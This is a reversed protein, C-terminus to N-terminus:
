WPFSIWESIDLQSWVSRCAWCSRSGSVLCRLVAVQGRFALAWLRFGLAWKCTCGDCGRPGHTICIQVNEPEWRAQCTYFGVQLPVSLKVPDVGAESARMFM